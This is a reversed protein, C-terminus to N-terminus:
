ALQVSLNVGRYILQRYCMPFLYVDHTKFKCDIVFPVRMIQLVKM